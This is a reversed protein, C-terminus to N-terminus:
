NLLTAAISPGPKQATCFVPLVFAKYALLKTEKSPDRSDYIRKRHKGFSCNAASIRHQLESDIDEWSVCVCVVTKSSKQLIDPVVRTLLYWTEFLVNASIHM